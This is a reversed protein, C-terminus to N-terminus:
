ANVYLKCMILNIVKKKDVDENKEVKIDDTKEIEYSEIIDCTV